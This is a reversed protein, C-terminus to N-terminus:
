KQLFVPKRSIYRINFSFGLEKTISELCSVNLRRTIEFLPKQRVCYNFAWRCILYAKRKTQIYGVLGFPVFMLAFAGQLWFETVNEIWANRWAFVYMGCFMCSFCLSMLMLINFLRGLRIEEANDGVSKVDILRTLVAFIKERWQLPLTIM